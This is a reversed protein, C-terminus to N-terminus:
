VKREAEPTNVISYIENMALLKESLHTRRVQNMALLKVNSWYSAKQSFGDAVEMPQTPRMNEMNYIAACNCIKM